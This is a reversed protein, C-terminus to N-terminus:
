FFYALPLSNGVAGQEYHRENNGDNGGDNGMMEMNPLFRYLRMFLPNVNMMEM